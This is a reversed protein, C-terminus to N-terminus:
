FTPPTISQLLVYEGVADAYSDSGASGPTVTVATFDAKGNIGLFRGSGQLFKLTGKQEGPGVGTGELLAVITSGDQFKYQAYGRYTINTRITESTIRRPSEVWGGPNPPSSNM